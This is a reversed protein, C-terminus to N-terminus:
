YQGPQKLDNILKFLNWPLLSILIEDRKGKVEGETKWSDGFVFYHIM